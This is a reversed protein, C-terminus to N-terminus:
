SDLADGSDMVGLMQWVMADCFGVEFDGSECGCESWHCFNAPMKRYYNEHWMVSIWISYYFLQGAEATTDIFEFLLPDDLRILGEQTFIREGKEGRVTSRYVTFDMANGPFNTVYRLRIGNEVTDAQYRKHNRYPDFRVLTHASDGIYYTIEEISERRTDIVIRHEALSHMDVSPEPTDGYWKAPTETDIRLEVMGNDLIDMVLTYFLWPMGSGRWTLPATPRGLDKSMGVLDIHLWEADIPMFFRELPWVANEGIAGTYFAEDIWHGSIRELVALLETSHADPAMVTIPETNEDYPLGTYLEASGCAAFTLLFLIVTFLKM